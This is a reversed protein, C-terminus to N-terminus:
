KGQRKLQEDWWKLYDENSIQPSLGRSKMVKIYFDKFFKDWYDKILPSEILRGGDNTDVEWQDLAKRLRLLTQSYKKNDALNYVEDPDNLTDYLEEVPRTEAMFQAQIENLEGKSHLLEMLTLVPYELKKYANFQTYPREPYYNRIYKFRKDRVARIKDDTEDCRDRQAYVYERQLNEQLFNQGELYNPPEVGALSLTAPMLDILSVLRSEIKGKSMGKGWVILPVKIGADYLWQKGRLMPRGHDGFFFIVTNELAQAEKLEEILNGIKMDLFQLTELYLAWDRRTIEHDPYCLPVKVDNPSIPNLKDAIFTRHAETYNIQAFFPKGKRVSKWAPGDLIKLDSPCHVYAGMSSSRESDTKDFVGEPEKFNFDTKQKPGMLICHYGVDQLYDSLLKVESPLEHGDNLHSRHHHANISSQYMGTFFASRATSCVPASAFANTYLTGESALQDLNPTKILDNGYCGFDPCLDEM